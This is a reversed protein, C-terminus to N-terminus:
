QVRVGAQRVRARFSMEAVHADAKHKSYKTLSKQKNTQTNQLVKIKVERGLDVVGYCSVTSHPRDWCKQTKRIFDVLM